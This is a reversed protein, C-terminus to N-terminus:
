NNVDFLLEGKSCESGKVVWGWAGRREAREMAYLFIAAMNNGEGVRWISYPFMKDTSTTRDYVDWGQDCHAVRKKM